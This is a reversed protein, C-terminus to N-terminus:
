LIIELSNNEYKTNYSGCVTCKNGLYHYYTISNQQCDNCIIYVCYQLDLPLKYLSIESDLIYWLYSYDTISKNCYPCKIFQSKYYRILNNIYESEYIHGCRLITYKSKNRLCIIFPYNQIHNYM